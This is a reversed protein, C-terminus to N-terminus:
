RRRNSVRSRFRGFTRDSPAELMRAVAMAAADTSLKVKRERGHARESLTAREAATRGLGPDRSFKASCGSAIGISRFFPDHPFRLFDSSRGWATTASAPTCFIGLFSGM